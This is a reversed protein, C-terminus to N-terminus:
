NLIMGTDSITTHNELFGRIYTRKLYFINLKKVCPVKVGAIVFYACCEFSDYLDFKVILFQANVLRALM